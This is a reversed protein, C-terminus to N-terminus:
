WVSVEPSLRVGFKEAVSALIEEALRWIEEGKANGYNVLVLAQRAHCGADGRRWGKWGAQEILWGAPIKVKGNPSDYHPMKPFEAQLRQFYAVEMEPNKFFSGANGIEAPDPLKSQRICIVANSVDRPTPSYIGTEALTKQIDGYSTNLHPAKSLRLFVKVIFFKDKLEQKFISARYGFRCADLDFTHLKGTALEVAELHHFVDKLEVGYAGINQMPAAGVSGPILSLNEIGFLNQDLSWLVLRHWNEGGGAAVIAQNEDEEVIKIGTIENKVVWGPLDGTLLINSGGGLIHIPSASSNEALFSQLDELSRVIALRESTAEISFTNLKKLSFHHHIDM